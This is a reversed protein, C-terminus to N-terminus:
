MRWLTLGAEAVAEREFFGKVDMLLAREPKAFRARLCAPTLSLYEKHPVALILADLDNLEELASLKQGYERFAEEPVAEPDHVVVSVGYEELERVVDIVRTNRLDPV